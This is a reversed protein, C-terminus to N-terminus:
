GRAAREYARRAEDVRRRLEAAEADHARGLRDRDARLEAARRDLEALARAYAAERDALATEAADLKSRDPPPKPRAPEPPAPKPRAPAPAPKAARGARGSSPQPGPKPQREPQPKPKPRPLDPVKPLAHPPARADEIPGGGLPRRLVVGPQKLAAAVADPDDTVAAGGDAFLDRPVGWAQLAAKQSPAAVIAEHFGMPASYVKLRPM